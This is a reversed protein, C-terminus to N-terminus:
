NSGYSGAYQVSTSDPELNLYAAAERAIQAFVPAAVTGGYRLLSGTQPDDVVVIGLIRPNGAPLFGMFSVVYRGDLYRNQAASYKRATGTKGAVSYGPVAATEGTGDPGVADVLCKRVEGAARESLVRRVVQPRFQEVVGGEEDLVADVIYPKMLFGGNAVVALASAMQLPTVAVEYGIAM